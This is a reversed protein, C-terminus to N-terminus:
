SKKHPLGSLIIYSPHLRRFDPVPPVVDLKPGDGGILASRAGAAALTMGLDTKLAARDGADAEPRGRRLGGRGVGVAAGDGRLGGVAHAGDGQSRDRGLERGPGGEGLSHSVVLFTTWRGSAYDGGLLRTTVDGNLILSDERGAFRTQTMRGWLAAFWGVDTQAGLSFSPGLLVEPVTMTRSRVSSGNGFLDVEATERNLWDSLAKLRETEGADPTTGGLLSAPKGDAATGSNEDAKAKPATGGIRQGGLSVSVEATRAARLRADVADLVQDAM